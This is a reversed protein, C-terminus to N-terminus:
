VLLHSKRCKKESGKGQEYLSALKRQANVNGGEAAMIYVDFAKEKNLERKM